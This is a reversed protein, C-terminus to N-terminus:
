KSPRRSITGGKVGAKSARQRGTLGDHGTLDSAFGKKVGKARGGIKGIRVYFDEGHNEKNKRAAQKGGAETGPM